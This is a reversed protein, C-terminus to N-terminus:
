NEQLNRKDQKRKKESKGVAIIPQGLQRELKQLANQAAKQEAKKKSRGFGRASLKKNVEAVVVFRKDHDPGSEKVIRYKPAGWGQSQAYELLASKYNFYTATKLVQDVRPFLIKEVFRFAASYGGDLYIAGLVAEFLNALNSLRTRGGTKEEGRDVLLFRGLGLEEVINGLVRRSVLVSKKGSLVGEDKTQFRHYLYDTVILDLVADGLFELRENSHYPAEHTRNLYSRHTLAQILHDKNKFRYGLIQELEKINVPFEGEGKKANGIRQFIKKLM